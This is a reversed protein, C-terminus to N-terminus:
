VLIERQLFLDDGRRTFVEHPKTKVVLIVDGPEVGPEQDGEGYFVIKQNERMGPTVSAELLKQQEVTKGGKCRKWRDKETIVEGEGSCTDCRKAM